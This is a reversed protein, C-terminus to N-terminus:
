NYLPTMSICLTEVLPDLVKTQPPPRAGFARTDLRRPPLNQPISHHMKENAWITCVYTFFNTWIAM